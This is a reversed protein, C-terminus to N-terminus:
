LQKYKPQSIKHGYLHYILETLRKYPILQYVSLYSILAKINPGYQVEQNLDKSISSSVKEGCCQCHYDYIIHETVEIKPLPIDAVQKTRIKDIALDTSCCGPCKTIKHDIKHDVETFKKLKSGKHGKQGGRSGSKKGKRSVRTTRKWVPDSSPPKSSNGSDQNLQDRLEKNEKELVLNRERLLDIEKSQSTVLSM